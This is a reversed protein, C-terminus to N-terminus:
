QMMKYEIARCRYALDSTPAHLISALLFGIVAVFGGWNSLVDKYRRVIRHPFKLVKACFCRVLSVCYGGDYGEEGSHFKYSTLSRFDAM